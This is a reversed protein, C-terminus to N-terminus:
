PRKLLLDGKEKAYAELRAYSLLKGLKEPNYFIALTDLSKMPLDAISEGDLVRIALKAGKEGIARESVGLAVTAGEKVTGEDSTILPIDRKAAITVLLRIGSALLNDKGVLIAECDPSIAKAAMELEPLTQISLTQLAIGRAQSQAQLARVEADNKENNSDYIFTLKKIGPLVSQIFTLKKAGDIEDLVGTINKIGQKKKDTETYMGALSVIPQQKVLALSMLTANTGIPVILDMKKGVFLEIISRQLKIDGQANQIHFHVTQHPYHAQLTDKFGAVMDQLARHEIPMVIGINIEKEAAFVPALFGVTLCVISLIIKTVPRTILTFM